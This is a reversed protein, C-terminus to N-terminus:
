KAGSRVSCSRVRRITVVAADTSHVTTGVSTSESCSSYM